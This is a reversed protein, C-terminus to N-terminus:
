ESNLENSFSKVFVFYKCFQLICILYILHLFARFRQHFDLSDVFFKKNLERLKNRM